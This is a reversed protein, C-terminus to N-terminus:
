KKNAWFVGERVGVDAVAIKQPNVAKLVGKLLILGGRIIDAREGIGAMKRRKDMDAFEIKEIIKDIHERTIEYDEIFSNGFDNLDLKALARLTGGIGVLSEGKFQSIWRNKGILNDVFDQAREAAEPTEGNKFFMECIGRSGYPISVMPLDESDLIGILETSGGGIDCIVGRSCNLHKKVALSDLAAEENGDIVRIEIGATDKVLDLFDQKNKAKRVAATAVATYNSVKEAIMIDKYKKLAEVARLQPEAKLIMDEAMGESLRVTCRNAFLTHGAEDFISMRVSNSGLDIVATKEM